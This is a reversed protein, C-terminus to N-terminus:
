TIWDNSEDYPFTWNPRKKAIREGGFLMVIMLITMLFLSLFGVIEGFLSIMVITVLISPIFLCMGIFSILEGVPRRVISM